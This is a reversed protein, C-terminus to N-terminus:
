QTREFRGTKRELAIHFVAAGPKPAQGDTYSAHPHAAGSAVVLPMMREVLTQMARVAPDGVLEAFTGWAIVSKWNSLDDMHDLEICVRPSARLMQLKKGDTSHGIISHGDYAFTMPVVYTEGDFHIGLRCVTATQLLEEIEYASLQGIM